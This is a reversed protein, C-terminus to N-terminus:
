DEVAGGGGVVLVHAAVRVVVGGHLVNGGGVDAAVGAAERGPGGGEGGGDDGAGGHTELEVLGDEVGAGDGHVERLRRPLGGIVVTRPRPKLDRLQARADRTRRNRERRRIDHRIAKPDRQARTLESDERGIEWLVQSIGYLARLTDGGYLAYRM